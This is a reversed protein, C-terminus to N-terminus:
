PAHGTVIMVWLYLIGLGSGALIIGAWRLGQVLRRLRLRRRNWDIALDVDDLSWGSMPRNWPNDRM